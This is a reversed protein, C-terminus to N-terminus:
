RRHETVVSDIWEVSDGVHKSQQTSLNYVIYTCLKENMNYYKLIFSSTLWIVDEHMVCNSEGVPVGVCITYWLPRYGIDPFGIACRKCEKTAPLNTSPRWLCFKRVYRVANTGIFTSHDSDM